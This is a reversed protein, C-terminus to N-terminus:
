RKITQKEGSRIADLFEDITFSYALEMYKHLAYYYNRQALEKQSVAADTRQQSKWYIYEKIVEGAERPVWTDGSCSVGSSIYELVATQGMLDGSLVLRRYEPDYRYMGVNTGGSFSYHWDFQQRPSLQNATDGLDEGCSIARLLPINTNKTLTWISGDVILGVRIYDVYDEPVDITNIDTVTIYATKISPSYFINLDSLGEIALQMLRKYHSTSYDGTENQYSAVVQKLSILGKTDM